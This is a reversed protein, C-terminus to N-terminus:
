RESILEARLQKFFGELYAHRDEAIVRGSKTFMQDKLKQLKFLHEHYPTHPEGLEKEGTRIFQASPEAYIDQEALVAFSIARVAGIAGIADLKDADFLVQAEITQPQESLDRFRHSRICHQVASIKEESWGEGKLVEGAFSASAHQHGVRADGVGPGEADHLLVAARVIELDAGEANGLREAMRYVRMIHNFGHVPDGAAYWKRADDITPM